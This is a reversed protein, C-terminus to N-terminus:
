YKNRNTMLSAVPTRYLVVWTSVRQPIHFDEALGHLAKTLLEDNYVNVIM